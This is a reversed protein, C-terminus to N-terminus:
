GDTHWTRPNQWFSYDYGWVKKWWWPALKGFWELKQMDCSIYRYESPSGKVPAEFAPPTPLFRSESRPKM